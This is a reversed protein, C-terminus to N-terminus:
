DRLEADILALLDPDLRDRIRDVVPRARAAMEARLAPDPETIEAGAALLRARCDADEDIAFRRQAATAEAVAAEVIATLEAGWGDVSRANFLVSSVGLLHRTMLIHPQYANIGLNLTNTLPNEQADYRGDRAGANMDRVDVDVPEFGLARFVQRYDENEFTRIRLGRCDDLTRIPRTSSIQRYGNDWYGFLRYGTAEAVKERLRAGLPGDLLAHVRAREPVRFHQDFLGFDPVRGTLYSSWFYCGDFAGEETMRLLDVAKHGADSVNGTLRVTAAGDSLRAVAGALVQTARTHVSRPGQYGGIHIEVTM